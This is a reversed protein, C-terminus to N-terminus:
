VPNAWDEVNDWFVDKPTPIVYDNISESAVGPENPIPKLADWFNLENFSCLAKGHSKAWFHKLQISGAPRATSLSQNFIHPVLKKFFDIDDNSMLSTYASKVDFVVRAFYLGHKVFKIGEPAIDGQENKALSERLPAKKTIDLKEIEIPNISIANSLSIGGTRKISLTLQDKKSKELGTVGFTRADFYRKLIGEESHQKGYDSLAKIADASDVDFGKKYSEFIHYNEPNVGAQEFLEKTVPNSHDEILNRFKRKISVSTIIGHGDGMIRPSGNEEPDGNPNGCSVEIIMAGTFRNLKDNM